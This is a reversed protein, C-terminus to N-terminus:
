FFWNGWRSVVVWGLGFSTLNAFLSILSARTFSLPSVVTWYFLAEGAFAWCESGLLRAAYNLPLQPFFFWVLPHTLLNAFVAFALRRRASPLADKLLWVVLPAEFSVTLGFGILWAYWNMPMLGFATTM